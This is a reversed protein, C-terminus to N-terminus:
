RFLHLGWTNLPIKVARNPAPLVLPHEDKRRLPPSRPSSLPLLPYLIKQTGAWGAM